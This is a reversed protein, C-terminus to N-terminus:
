KLDQEFDFDLEIKFEACIDGQVWMDLQAWMDAQGVANTTKITLFYLGQNNSGLVEFILPAQRVV